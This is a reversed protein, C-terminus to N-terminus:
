SHIAFGSFPSAFKGFPEVHLLPKKSSTLEYFNSHLQSVWAKIKKEIVAALLGYLLNVFM